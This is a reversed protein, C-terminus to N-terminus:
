QNNYYSDPALVFQGSQQVPANQKNTNLFFGDAYGQAELVISQFDNAQGTSDKFSGSIVGTTKNLTLKLDETGTEDAGVTYINARTQTVPVFDWVSNTFGAEVTALDGGWITAVENTSDL